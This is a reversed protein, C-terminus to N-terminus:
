IAMITWTGSSALEQIINRFHSLIIV